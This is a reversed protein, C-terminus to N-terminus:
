HEDFYDKRRIYKGMYHYTIPRMLWSSISKLLRLHDSVNEYIKGDHLWLMRGVHWYFGPIPPLFTVIDVDCCIRYTRKALPYYRRFAHNGVAPQGFTVVRKICRPFQQELRWAALVAIAGGSSHGILSVRKGEAIRVSLLEVLRQYISGGELSPQELMKSYGWHLYCIHGQMRCRRPWMSLNIVWDWWSQTGRFVVIVENKHSWLVRIHLRQWQDTILQHGDTTFGYDTHEFVEDYSRECLVAYREYQYRKLKKM